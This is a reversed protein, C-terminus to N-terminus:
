SMLLADLSNETKLQHIMFKTTYLTYFLLEYRGRSPDVSIWTKKLDEIIRVVNYLWFKLFFIIYTSWSPLFFHKGQQKMKIDTFQVNEPKVRLTKLGSTQQASKLNKWLQM